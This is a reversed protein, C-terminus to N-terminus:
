GTVGLYGVALNVIGRVTVYGVKGIGGGAQSLYCCYGRWNVTVEAYVRVGVLAASVNVSALALYVYEAGFM